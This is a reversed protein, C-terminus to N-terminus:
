LCTAFIICSSLKIITRVTTRAIRVRRAIERTTMGDEYLMFVAKRKASAIMNM